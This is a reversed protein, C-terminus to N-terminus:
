GIKNFQRFRIKDKSVLEDDSIKTKISDVIERIDDLETQTVCNGWRVVIGDEDRIEFDTFYQNM